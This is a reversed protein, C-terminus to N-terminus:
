LGGITLAKFMLRLSVFVLFMGLTRRFALESIRHFTKNGLWIGLGMAPLMALGWALIRTDFLGNWWFTATQTMAAPIFILVLLRRLQRKDLHRGFHLVLPPANIGIFGGCFGSFAGVGLDTKGARQPLHPDRRAPPTQFIFWLATIFFATGLILQFQQGAIYKLAMAGFVSGSVMLLCIPVWYARGLPVPDVRVMTLGGFINVFSALVIILKPDIFLSGLAVIVTTTGTGTVGKLFFAALAVLAILLMEM